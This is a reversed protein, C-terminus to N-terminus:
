IDKHTKNSIIIGQNANCAITQFAREMVRTIISDTVTLYFVAIETKCILFTLNMCPVHCNLPISTRLSHNM